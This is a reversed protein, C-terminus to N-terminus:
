LPTIMLKRKIRETFYYVLLINPIWALWAVLRYAITFDELFLILLPLWIRLTVASFCAAYSYHMAVQHQIILGKKVYLFANLTTYIWLIGLSIFGLSSIIGGTAFCGIYIGSVGSILVAIIYVKGTTRHLKPRTARIKEHFQVWGILLAVGGLFIHSYFAINWIFNSLLERDKSGLLGFTRDIFLYILPYIGILFSLFAVVIFLIRKTM